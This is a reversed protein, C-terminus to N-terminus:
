RVIFDLEIEMFDIGEGLALSSDRNNVRKNRNTFYKVLEPKTERTKDILFKSGAKVKDTISAGSANQILLDVMSDITGFCQSSVDLLSQGETSIHYYTTQENVVLPKKLLSRFPMYVINENIIAQTGIVADNELDLSPNDLLFQFLGEISGYSKAAISAPTQSHQVVTTM